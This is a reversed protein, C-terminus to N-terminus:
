NPKEQQRCFVDVFNDRCCSLNQVMNVKGAGADGWKLTGTSEKILLLGRRSTIM